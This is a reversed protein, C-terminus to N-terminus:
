ANLEEELQSLVEFRNSLTSSHLNNKSIRTPTSESTAPTTLIQKVQCKPRNPCNIAIHGPGVGVICVYAIQEVDRSKRMQYRHEDEHQKFRWQHLCM